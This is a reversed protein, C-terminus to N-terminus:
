GAVPVLVDKAQCDLVRRGRMAYSVLDDTRHGTRLLLLVYVLIVLLCESHSRPRLCLASAMARRLVNTM